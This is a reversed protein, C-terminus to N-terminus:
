SSSEEDDSSGYVQDLLNIVDRPLRLTANGSLNLNLTQEPYLGYLRSEDQAAKLALDLDGSDLAKNRLSRRFAIHHSLLDEQSAKAYQQILRHAVHIYHKIGSPGVEFILGYEYTIRSPPLGSLIADYIAWIREQAVATSPALESLPPIPKTPPPIKEDESPEYPPLGLTEELTSMPDFEQAMRSLMEDRISPRRLYTGTTSTGTKKPTGVRKRSM